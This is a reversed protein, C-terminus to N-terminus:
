SHECEHIFAAGALLCPGSLRVTPFDLMPCAVARVAGRRLLVLAVPLCLGGSSRAHGWGYAAPEQNFWDLLFCFLDEVGVWTDGCWDAVECDTSETCGPNEIPACGGMCMLLGYMDQDWSEFIGNNNLDTEIRNYSWDIAFDYGDTETVTGDMNWDAVCAINAYVGYNNIYRKDIEGIAITLENLSLCDDVEHDECGDALFPMFWVFHNVGYDM